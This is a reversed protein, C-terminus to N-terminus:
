SPNKYVIVSGNNNASTNADMNNLLIKTSLIQSSASSITVKIYFSYNSDEETIPILKFNLLTIKDTKIEKKGNENEIVFSNDKIYICNYGEMDEPIFSFLEIEEANRIEKTLYRMVLRSDEQNKVIGEGGSFINFSSVLLPGIIMIIIGSIAIVLLVEILTFGSENEIM